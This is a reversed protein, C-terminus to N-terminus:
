QGQNDTNSATSGGDTPAVNGNNNPKFISRLFDLPTAPHYPASAAPGADEPRPQPLPVSLRALTFTRPRRRPLPINASTRSAHAAAGPPASAAAMAPPTPWNTGSRQTSAFRDGNDPMSNPAIMATSSPALTDSSDATPPMAMVPAAAATADTSRSDDGGSVNAANSPTANTSQTVEVAPPAAEAVVTGAQPLANASNAMAAAPNTPPVSTTEAAAPQFTPLKPPGVYTRVYATITWMVVPVATLVAVVIVIRRLVPMYHRFDDEEDESM